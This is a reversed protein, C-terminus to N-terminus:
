IASVVGGNNKVKITFDASDRFITNLPADAAAMPELQLGTIRGLVGPQIRKLITDQLFRLAPEGADAGMSMEVATNAYSRVTDTTALPKDSLFGGIIPDLEERTNLTGENIYETGIRIYSNRSVITRTAAARLAVATMTSNAIPGLFQNHMIRTDQGRSIEVAISTAADPNMFNQGIVNGRPVYTNGTVSGVRVDFEDQGEFYCDHVSTMDTDVLWIGRTCHEVTIGHIENGVGTNAGTATLAPDGIEMGTECNQMELQGHIEIANFAMGEGADGFGAEKKASVGRKCTQIRGRTIEGLFSGGHLKIGDGNTFGTIRIDRIAWCIIGRLRIASAGAATGIIHLNEVGGGTNPDDLPLSNSGLRVAEAAGSYSIRSAWGQGRLTTQAPVILTANTAYTGVRLEAVGGAAATLAAQIAATDTTANGTPAAVTVGKANLEARARAELDELAVADLPTLAGPNATAYADIRAHWDFPFEGVAPILAQPLDRWDKDLAM